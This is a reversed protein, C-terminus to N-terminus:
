RGGPIGGIIGFSGGVGAGGAGGAMPDICFDIRTRALFLAAVPGMGFGLGLSDWISVLPSSWVGFAHLLFGLLDLHLWLPGGSIGWFVRGGGGATNTKNKHDLSGGSSTQIRSKLTKLDNASM